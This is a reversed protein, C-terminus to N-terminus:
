HFTAVQPVMVGLNSLKLLILRLKENSAQDLCKLGCMILSDYMSIDLRFIQDKISITVQPKSVVTDSSFPAGVVVGFVTSCWSVHSRFYHELLIM